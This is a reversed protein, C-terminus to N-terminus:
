IRSINSKKDSNIKVTTVRMVYRFPIYFVPVPSDIYRNSGTDWSPNLNQSHAIPRRQHRRQPTPRTILGPSKREADWSRDRIKRLEDTFIINRVM